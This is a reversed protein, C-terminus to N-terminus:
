SAQSASPPADELRVQLDLVHTTMDVLFLGVGPLSEVARRLGEVRDLRTGPSEGQLSLQRAQAAMDSVCFHFMINFCWFPTPPHTFFEGQLTYHLLQSGVSLFSPFM